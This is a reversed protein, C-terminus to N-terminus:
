ENILTVSQVNPHSDKRLRYYHRYKEDDISSLSSSEGVFNLFHKTQTKITEYRGQTIHGDDVRRQQRELPLGVLETATLSFIRRGTTMMGFFRDMWINPLDSEIKSRYRKFKDVFQDSIVRRPVIAGRVEMCILLELYFQTQHFESVFISLRQLNHTVRSLGWPGTQEV